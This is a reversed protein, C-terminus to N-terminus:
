RAPPILFVNRRGAAPSLAFISKKRRKKKNRCRMIISYYLNYTWIIFGNAFTSLFRCFFFFSYFNLSPRVCGLFLLPLGVFSLPPPNRFHFIITTREEQQYRGMLVLGGSFNHNAAWLNKTQVGCNHRKELMEWLCCRLVIFCPQDYRPWTYNFKRNSKLSLIVGEPGYDIRRKYGLKTKPGETVETRWRRSVSCRFVRFIVKFPLPM